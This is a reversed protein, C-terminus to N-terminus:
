RRKAVITTINRDLGAQPRRIADEPNGIAVADCGHESLWRVVGDGNLMWIHEDPKYHRWSRLERFDDAHPTEPFSLFLTRFRMRFLDDIDPFHELVDTLFLVDWETGYLEDDSISDGAVDYERMRGFCGGVTRAFCGNGSGVDCAQGSLCESPSVASLLFGLRLWSMEATTGQASKYGCDYSFPKPDVQRWFGYGDREFIADDM